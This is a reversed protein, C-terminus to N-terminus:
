EAIHEKVIEAARKTNEVSLNPLSVRIMRKKGGKARDEESFFKYAPMLVVGKRAIESLVEEIPKEATKPGELKKLDILGYYGNGPHPIGLAEYFTTVKKALTDVYNKREEGGLVIHCLGLIQSPTPTGSIHQFVGITKGGVSKALFLFWKTGQYKEIFGPCDKELIEEAIFKDAEPALYIDGMRVGTGREIKSIANLRITRKRASEINVISTKNAFFEAYVEDSLIISNHKEAIAAIKELTEKGFPFGTPNNPDIMIIAKIRDQNELAKRFSEEDMKGSEPDVSINVLKLGRDEIFHTYPAYVPSLMLVTDGQGLFGIGEEGFGKFFAGVGHSAGNIITIDEFSVPFGFEKTREEAVVMRVILEGWSTPYRGGSVISYKFIEFLVEFRNMPHKQKKTIEVLKTIFMDLDKVLEAAIAETYTEHAIKKITKELDPLSEETEGGLHAKTQNNNLHTDILILFSFFRRSRTNPAFGYGPEGQSLDLVNAEGKEEIAKRRLARFALFPVTKEVDWGWENDVYKM